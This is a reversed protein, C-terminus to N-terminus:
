ITEEDEQMLESRMKFPIRKFLERQGDNFGEAYRDSESTTKSAGQMFLIIAVGVIAGIFLGLIFM